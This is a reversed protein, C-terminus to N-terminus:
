RPMPLTLDRRLAQMVSAFSTDMSPTYLGHRTFFDIIALASSPKFEGALLKHFCDEAELLEFNDVEGDSPNIKPRISHDSPLPLDYTYYFGPLIWGAPNRNSFTVCGTSRINQQLYTSPLHAEEAAERIIAQLPSEGIRLGHASFSLFPFSYTIVLLWAEVQPLTSCAPFVPTSLHSASFPLSLSM